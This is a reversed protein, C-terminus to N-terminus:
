VFQFTWIIRIEVSYCGQPLEKRFVAWYPRLLPVEELSIRGSDSIARNLAADCTFNVVSPCFLLAVCTVVFFYRVLTVVAVDPFVEGGVFSPSVHAIFTYM